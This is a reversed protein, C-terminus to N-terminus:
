KRLLVGLMWLMVISLLGVLVWVKPNAFNWFSVSVPVTDRSIQTNHDKITLIATYDGPTKYVHSVEKGEAGGGDGFEWFFQTSKPTGFGTATFAFTNWTQRDVSAAAHMTGTTKDTKAGDDVTVTGKIEMATSTDEVAIEKAQAVPIIKLPEKKELVIAAKVVIPEPKAVAVEQKSRKQDLPYFDKSDTVGDGDTDPNLPNTGLRAEDVDSLGDNDDDDDCANGLGDRDTDIQDINQVKLCNDKEDSIGDRDTDSVPSILPSLAEDNASNEDAPVAARVRVMINFPGSPVTFDAFVEDAFGNARVSVPQEEGIPTAGQFFLVSARMDKTGFNHVTAYVRATQGVVLNEPVFAIDAARVGLDANYTAGHVGLPIAVAFILALSLLWQRRM